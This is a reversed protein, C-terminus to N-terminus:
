RVSGRTPYNGGTSFGITTVERRYRGPLGGLRQYAALADAVGPECAALELLHRQEEQRGAVGKQPSAM